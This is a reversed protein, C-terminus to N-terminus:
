KPLNKLHKAYGLFSIILLITWLTVLLPSGLVWTKNLLGNSLLTNMLGLVVILSIIMPGILFLVFIGIRNKNKIAKFAAVLPIISLGVVILLGLIWSFKYNSSLTYLASVEDGAGYAATYIRAFPLNAFILSFGLSKIGKKDNKKLLLWGLWILGFSFMPGAFTAITSLQDSIKCSECLSWVNFDRSGWCECLLRGVSTHVLEHLEGCLFLLLCFATAYPYSFRLTM